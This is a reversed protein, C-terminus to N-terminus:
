DLLHENTTPYGDSVSVRFPKGTKKYFPCNKSNCTTYFTASSSSGLHNTMFRGCYKCNDADIYDNNNLIRRVPDVM